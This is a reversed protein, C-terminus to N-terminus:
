KNNMLWYLEVPTSTWWSLWNTSVRMRQSHGDALLINPGVNAGVRHRIAVYPGPNFMELSNRLMDERQDILVLFNSPRRVTEIKTRVPIGTNWATALNGIIRPVGGSSKGWDGGCFANTIYSLSSYLKSHYYRGRDKPCYAVTGVYKTGELNTREPIGLYKNLRAPWYSDTAWVYSPSDDSWYSLMLKGNNETNYTGWANGIQRLNSLCVVDMAQSRAKQLAPMLIALLLAIISIVVLLEVLTFGM